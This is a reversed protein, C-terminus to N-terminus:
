TRFYQIQWHSRTAQKTTAHTNTHTDTHTRIWAWTLCKTPMGGLERWSLLGQWVRLFEPSFIFRTLIHTSTFIYQTHTLRHSKHMELKGTGWVSMELQRPHLYSQWGCCTHPAPQPAPSTQAGEVGPQLSVTGCFDINTRGDFSTSNKYLFRTQISALKDTFGSFSSDYAIAASTYCAQM